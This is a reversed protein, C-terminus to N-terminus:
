EALREAKSKSAKEKKVVKEFDTRKIFDTCVIVAFVVRVKRNVWIVSLFTVSCLRGFCM